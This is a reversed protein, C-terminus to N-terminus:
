MVLKINNRNEKKQNLFRPMALGLVDRKPVTPVPVPPLEPIESGSLHEDKKVGTGKIIKGKLDVRM